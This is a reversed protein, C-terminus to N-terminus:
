KWAGAVYALVAISTVEVQTILRFIRSFWNTLEALVNSLFQIRTKEIKM